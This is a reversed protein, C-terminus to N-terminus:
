PPLVALARAAPHVQARSLARWCYAAALVSAAVVPAAPGNRFLWHCECREEPPTKRKRGGLVSCTLQIPGRDDKGGDANDFDQYSAIHTEHLALYVLRAGVSRSQQARQGVELDLNGLVVHRM